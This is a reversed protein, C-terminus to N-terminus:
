AMSDSQGKLANCLFFLALKAASGGAIIGFMLPGLDLM